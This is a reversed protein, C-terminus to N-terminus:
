MQMANLRHVQFLVNLYVWSSSKLREVRNRSQITNVGVATFSIWLNLLFEYIFFSFEVASFLLFDPRSFLREYQKQHKLRAM